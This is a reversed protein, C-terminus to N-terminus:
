EGQEAFRGYLKGHLEGLQSDFLYASLMAHLLGAEARTLLLTDRQASGTDASINIGENSHQLLITRDTDLCSPSVDLGERVEFKGKLTELKEARSHQKAM